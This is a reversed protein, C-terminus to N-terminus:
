AKVSGLMIGKVFYKQLFPYVMAIPLVAVVITAMKLSPGLKGAMQEKTAAGNAMFRSSEFLMEKLIIQITWLKRNNFFIMPWFFQNWQDVAYFLAVAAMVPLSLPLVIKFLLYIESAGDITAAEELSEPITMFYSRMILMYYTSAAGTLIVAWYHDILGLNRILLYYPIIGGSFYMTFIFYNIFFKYGKLTTKSMVYALMTTLAISLFTGLVTVIVSSKFAMLMSNDNFIYAYADFTIKRPFIFLGGKIYEKMPLLSVTLVSLFPYLTIIGLIALISYNFIPFWKFRFHKVNQNLTMSGYGMEFSNLM